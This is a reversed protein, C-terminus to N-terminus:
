WFKFDMFNTSLTNFSIEVLKIFTNANRMVPCMQYSSLVSSSGTLLLFLPLCVNKVNKHNPKKYVACVTSKRKYINSLAQLVGIFVLKFNPVSKKTIKCKLSSSLWYIKNIFNMKQIRMLIFIFVLIIFM